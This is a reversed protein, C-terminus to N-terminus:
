SWFSSCASFCAEPGRTDQVNVGAGGAAHAHMNRLRPTMRPSRGGCVVGQSGQVRLGRALSGQEEQVNSSSRQWGAGM